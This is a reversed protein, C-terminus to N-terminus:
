GLQGGDAAVLRQMRAYEVLERRGGEPVPPLGLSAGNAPYGADFDAYLQALNRWTPEDTEMWRLWAAVAGQDAPPM